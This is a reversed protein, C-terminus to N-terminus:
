VNMSELKRISKPKLILLAIIALIVGAIRIVLAAGRGVGLGSVRGIMDASVGSVTYAIVYGLQSILGIMGWARGQVEDPINTRALYDLCNNAVPLAAFFLFGFLCILIINEKLGFGVMFIGSLSLSFALIKVYHKKLGRVGLVIGSALMGLACVTESMGLTKADSFSLILPEALIQFMGMSLTVGSSIVVLILIGRKVCLAKWGGKISEVFSEERVTKSTKISKRVVAVSVLTLFFTSIDIVLLLKVDSMGLLFGAIVPSFLYRASGAMSVLGNAKSYEEKSLVDTITAKYSPELLASFVASIFVGVCIEFLSAEGTMMSILIYLIGLASFGDGIMMLKRRDYRDALVGAPVSFLLTPVFALLTVISMSAASGTTNFVYVSLGFSTLGSGISSILAGSWLLIFKKFNGNKENM